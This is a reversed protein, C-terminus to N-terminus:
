KNSKNNDEGKNNKDDEEGENNEEGEENQQTNSNPEFGGMMMNQMNQIQEQEEMIRDFEAEADESNGFEEIYAKHSRVNAEVEQIGITRLSEDDDPLPYNHKWYVTTEIALTESGIIDKFLGFSQYVELMHVVWALVEDWTRWKEECRTILDYYVMKLAKASPVDIIAEPMPQEMLEYMDKKLQELYSDVASQFSFTSGLTGFKAVSNSGTGDGLTPDSKLDILQNPAIKINKLSSSKVDVFVPQEFMKFRLADRYDSITKNYTTAMDMLDKIDSCGRIDGTLGDNLIVRCPLEQLGTNWETKLEYTEIVNDEENDSVATTLTTFATVNAGDVIKYTAWCYGDDKMEYTWKHWRQDRQIKGITSKDQYAIEVKKLIDIDNEDYEYIFEPMTYFRFKVTGLPKGQADVDALMCLLVRKGITCDMFAKGFKNWFKTDKLIHEVCGRKTDITDRNVNDDYSSLVLTPPVSTMFRGQKKMLKKTLNRVERTPKYDRDSVAWLQGTSDLLDDEAAWKRGEYFEYYAQVEPLEKRFELDNAFLGLLSNKFDRYDSM